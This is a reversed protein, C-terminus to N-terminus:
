MFWVSEKTIILGLGFCIGFGIGFGVCDLDLERIWDVFCLGLVGRLGVRGRKVM